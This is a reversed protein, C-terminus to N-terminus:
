RFIGKQLSKRTDGKQIKLFFRSYIGMCGDLINASPLVARAFRTCVAVPPEQFVNTKQAVAVVEWHAVTIKPLTPHIPISVVPKSIRRQAKYPLIGPICSAPPPSLCLRALLFCQSCPPPLKTPYFCLVLVFQPSLYFASSLTSCQQINWATLIVM